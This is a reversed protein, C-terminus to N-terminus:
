TDTASHTKRVGGGCADACACGCSSCAGGCAKESCVFCVFCVVPPVSNAVQKARARAPNGEAPGPQRGGAPPSDPLALSSFLLCSCLLKLALMEVRVCRCFVSIVVAVVVINGKIRNNLVMCFALPIVLGVVITNAIVIRGIFLEINRAWWQPNNWNWEAAKARLAANEEQLTHVQERLEAITDAMAM